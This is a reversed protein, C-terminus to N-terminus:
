DDPIRVRWDFASRPVLQLRERYVDLLGVIEVQQGAEPAPELTSFLNSWFVVEITGTGDRLPAKVGASFGEPAGLVGRVRVIRGVDALGLAGVDVWLLPPAARIITVDEESRPVIELVDNYIDVEGDVEVEAGVDLGRPDSLAQHVRDWLLLAVQASGDDLTAKVGGSLGELAVVDGRVRVQRGQDQPGLQNLPLLASVTPEPQAAVLIMDRVDALTLQPTGRYLSVTGAVDIGQGERIEPLAGTLAAVTEDVAVTIMGSQDGIAILTLGQYPNTITQVEGMVRVRRGEDLLTIAGVKMLVPEPRQVTLHGPVNVTLALYDERVRLTGAVTVNDGIAPLTESALLRATVDRYCNIHVEGTEDTLWFGLYGSEPDYSLGRAIRGQLRVYALNMTSTAQGASLTPIESRRALCWLVLLGVTALLVVLIKVTRLALRGSIRAGCYPCRAYPGVFRGCSGCYAPLPEPQSGSPVAQVPTSM